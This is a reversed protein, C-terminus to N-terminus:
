VSLGSSTRNPTWNFWKNTNRNASATAAAYEEEQAKTKTKETDKGVGLLTEKNLLSSPKQLVGMGDNLMNSFSFIDKGSGGKILSEIPTFGGLSPISKTSM